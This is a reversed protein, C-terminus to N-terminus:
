RPADARAEAICYLNQYGRLFIESGALAPSADFGDDLDNVALVELVPGHKLVVTSGERGAIYVRGAAGVPSSFVNPVADLRTPGHHLKGTAADFVSLIGNNSKLM